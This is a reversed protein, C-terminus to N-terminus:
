ARLALATRHRARVHERAWRTFDPASMPRGYLYGQGADCGLEVLGDHLASTEVGEAVVRMGLERALGATYRVIARDRPDDLMGLVFSRDIKVERVPLRKLLDLASYGTGFDDLSVTVGMRSLQEAVPLARDPDAVIMSETIEVVLAHPSVRRKRCLSAIRQPLDPEALIRPSLNVSVTLPLGDQRWVAVQLLAADLVHMTVPVILGTQEAIPIFEAPPMLGHEPHRWRLLAEAGVPRGDALDVQPQYHIALQDADIAHRLGGALTLRMLTHDDDDATYCCVGSKREKAQYMAVDARQMLTEVDDGHQPHCAIGISAGIELTVEGLEIPLAVAECLKRAVDIAAGADRVAPLLIAFEDGGLRAVVDRERLTDRLRSAVERLVEDGEHHGLTDNIEKFRDLDILMVASVGAGPEGPALIARRICDGFLVRNPLGTLADHHALREHISAHRGASHVALLPVALLVVALPSRELAIVALPALGILIAETAADSLLSAPLAGGDGALRRETAAIGSSVLVYAAGAAVYAGLAVWDFQVDGTLGALELVAGAAGLALTQRAVHLAWSAASRQHVADSVLLALAQAVVAATIGSHLLLAFTFTTSPAVEGTGRGIKIPVLEAVLVAAGLVLTVPDGARAITPGHAAALWALLGLGSAAIAVDFLLALRPRLRHVRRARPGAARRAGADPNQPDIPALSGRGSCAPHV